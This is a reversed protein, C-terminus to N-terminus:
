RGKAIRIKAVPAAPPPAKALEAQQAETLVRRKQVAAASLSPLKPM